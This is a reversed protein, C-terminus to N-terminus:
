YNEKEIIQIDELCIHRPINSYQALTSTHIFENLFCHFKMKYKIYIYKCFLKDKEM